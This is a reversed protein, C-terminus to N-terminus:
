NGPFGAPTLPTSTETSIGFILAPSISFNTLQTESHIWAEHSKLHWLLKGNGDGLIISLGRHNKTSLNLDDAVNFTHEVAPIISSCSGTPFEIRIQSVVRQRRHSLLIRCFFIKTVKQTSNKDRIAM